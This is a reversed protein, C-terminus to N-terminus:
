DILTMGRPSLFVAFPRGVFLKREVHPAREIQLREIDALKIRVYGGGETYFDIAARGRAQATTKLQALAEAIINGDTGPEDGREEPTFHAVRTLKEHASYADGENVAQMLLQGLEPQPAADLSGVVQTGDALFLSVRTWYRSDLSGPSNDGLVFYEDEDLEVQLPLEISTGFDNLTRGIYYIDRDISIIRLEAGHEDGSHLEIRAKRGDAPEARAIELAEPGALNIAGEADRARLQDLLPTGVDQSVHEVGDIVVSM